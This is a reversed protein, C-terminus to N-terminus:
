TLIMRIELFNHIIYLLFIALRVLGPRLPALKLLKAVPHLFVNQMYIVISIEVNKINLSIILSNLNIPVSILIDKPRISVTM